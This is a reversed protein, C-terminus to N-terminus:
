GKLKIEIQKLMDATMTALDFQHKWGWDKRAENDDISGPWSDAIAQRFDPEYSCQFSPMLKKIEKVMEAPTFSVGGLNYSSRIKVKDASVQMLDITARVADPMYMMPLPTNEKLFCSYKNHKIAEYFIHVAYDTTGGGPPSQYSILGPYRVSRVDLGYKLYYYECLREGALKTIGYMSTPDMVCNQPTNQRPTNPGFAAISSPWFVQKLKLAVAIELVNLLGDMNIKWALQPDKEGSASLIAALHYVTTINHKEIFTRVQEKNTVDLVETNPASKVDTAVVNNEGFQKRLEPVLESGLQGLAGIVLIKTAM